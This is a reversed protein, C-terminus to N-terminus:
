RVRRNISKCCAQGQPQQNRTQAGAILGAAIFQPPAAPTTRRKCPCAPHRPRLQVPAGEPVVGLPNFLERFTPGEAAARRKVWVYGVLHSAAAV